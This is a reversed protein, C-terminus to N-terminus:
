KREQPYGADAYLEQLAERPTLGDQYADQNSEKDGLLWTLKAKRAIERLSKWWEEFTM